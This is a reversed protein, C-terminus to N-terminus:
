EEDCATVVVDGCKTVNTTELGDSAFTLVKEGEHAERALVYATKVAKIIKM